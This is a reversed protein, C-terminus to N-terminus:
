GERFFHFVDSSFYHEPAGMGTNRIVHQYGHPEPHDGGYHSHGAMWDNIADDSMNRMDLTKLNTLANHAIRYSVIQLDTAGHEQLRDLYRKADARTEWAYFGPGLNAKLLGTPWPEGGGALRAVDTHNLVAYFTIDNAM